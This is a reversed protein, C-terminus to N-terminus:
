EMKATIGHLLFRARLKVSSVAPCSLPAPSASGFRPRTCGREATAISMGAFAAASFLVSKDDYTRSTLLASLSTDPPGREEQLSEPVILSLVKELRWPGGARGPKRGTGFLRRSGEFRRERPGRSQHM